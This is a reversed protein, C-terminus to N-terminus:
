FRYELTLSASAQDSWVKVGRSWRLDTGLPANVLRHSGTTRLALYDIGLGLTLNKSLDKKLDVSGHWAHGYTNEYTFRRGERLLHHDKNRGEVYAWDFQFLLRLSSTRPPKSLDITSRVGVFYQSYTQRFRILDGPLNVTPYGVASQTGDHAMLHFRQWRVGAVPRINLWKPLHLWDSTELDADLKVMYSPNVTCSSEGYITRVHPQADDDWDSDEFSGDVKQSANTLGELSVSFRPYHLKLSLGGWWSNNLPFELRSLPAQYPPLPNGFEYSTHGKALYQTKAGLSLHTTLPVDGSKEAVQAFSSSVGLCALFLLLAAGALVARVRGKRAEESRRRCSRGTQGHPIVFAPKCLRRRRSGALISYLM